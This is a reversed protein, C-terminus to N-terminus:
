CYCRTQINIIVIAGGGAGGEAWAMRVWTRETKLWDIVCVPKTQLLFVRLGMLLPSLLLTFLSSAAIYNCGGCWYHLKVVVVVVINVPFNYGWWWCCRRYHCLQGLITDCHVVMCHRWCRHRRYCYYLLVVVVFVFGVEVGDVATLNCYM